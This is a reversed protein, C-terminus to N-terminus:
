NASAAADDRARWRPRALAVPDARGGAGGALIARKLERLWPGTSVGLAALRDKAVRPRTGEGRRRLGPLADRPRRLPRPRPVAGRRAARRRACEFPACPSARSAPAAPSAPRRGAATPASRACTWCWRSRTATCWTGPTPACSTSSRTRRLRARRGARLGDQARARRAPVPDFGAFHDMHTHSVFVHSVRMLKRPPLVGIDGLDFLLARREDRFDVYLGPDGFPTTSWAPNSCIACATAPTVRRRHIANMPPVISRVCASRTSGKRDNCM